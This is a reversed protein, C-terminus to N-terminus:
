PELAAVLEVGCFPCRVVTDVYEGPRGTVERDPCDPNPCWM